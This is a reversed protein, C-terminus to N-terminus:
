RSLEPDQMTEKEDFYEVTGDNVCYLALKSDRNKHGCGADIRVFGRKSDILIEGSQPDHGCITTFGEAKALEYTSEEREQLMFRYQKGTLETIKYGNRSQKMQRILNFDKPPMSHVFLYDKGDINKPLVVYSNLLFNYIDDREKLTKVRGGPLFDLFTTGGRNLRLWIDINKAETETLGKEKIMEQYAADYMAFKEEVAKLNESKCYVCWRYQGYLDSRNCIVVFDERQLGRRRMTDITTLFQMEHNGLLFTIEPNTQENQKRKMIDQLIRIGGNGRDIVDGLIILHDKPTMKKMVEMYSGYMGHIDGIVYTKGDKCNSNKTNQFMREKEKVQLKINSLNEDFNQQGTKGNAQVICRNALYGNKGFEGGLYIYDDRGEKNMLGEEGILREIFFTDIRKKGCVKELETPDSTNYRSFTEKECFVRITRIDGTKMLFQVYYMDYKDLYIHSNLVRAAKAEGKIIYSM